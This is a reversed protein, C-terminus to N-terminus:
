DWTGKIEKAEEAQKTSDHYAKSVAHLNKEDWFLAPDGRHAKIHDVVPSNPAPHKGILLVGTRQCVYLDRRLVKIRLKRWRASAYWARWENTQRRQRDREKGEHAQTAFRSGISGVRQRLTKLKTM